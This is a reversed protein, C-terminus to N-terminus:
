GTVILATFVTPSETAELLTFPVGVAGAGDVVAGGTAGAGVVVDVVMGDAERVSEM